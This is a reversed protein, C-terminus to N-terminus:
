LIEAALLAPVEEPVAHGVDNLIKLEAGISSSLREGQWPPVLPDREGWLALKRVPLAKLADVPLVFNGIARAAELFGDNFGPTRMVEEYIDLLEPSPTAAGWIAKLYTVMVTRSVPLKSFLKMGVDAIPSSLLLKLETPLGFAPASAVTLRSIREPAMAATQLSVLGGFSHGFIEFRQAGRVSLFKLLETAIASPTSAAWHDSKATRPLDIAILRKNGRRAFLPNFVGSQAGLGHVLVLAEGEGEDRAYIM